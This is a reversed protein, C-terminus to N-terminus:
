KEMSVNPYMELINVDRSANFTATRFQIGKKSKMLFNDIPKKQQQTLHFDVPQQTLHFDVPCDINRKCM